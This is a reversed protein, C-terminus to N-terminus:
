DQDRRGVVEITQGRIRPSHYNVSHQSGSANIMMAGPPVCLPPRFDQVSPFYPALFRQKRNRLGVKLVDSGAAHANRGISLEAITSLTTVATTQKLFDRRSPGFNSESCVM